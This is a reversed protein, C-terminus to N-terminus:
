YFIAFMFHCSFDIHTSGLMPAAIDLAAMLMTCYQWSQVRFNFFIFQDTVDCHKDNMCIFYVMM